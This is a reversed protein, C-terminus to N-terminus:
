QIFYNVKILLFKRLYIVENQLKNLRNIEYKLRKLAAIENQSKNSETVDDQTKNLENISDKKINKNKIHRLWSKAVIYYERVVLTCYFLISVFTISIAILLLIKLLGHLDSM